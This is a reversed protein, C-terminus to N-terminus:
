IKDYIGNHIYFDRVFKAIHLRITERIIQMENFVDNIPVIVLKDDIGIKEYCDPKLGQMETGKLGCSTASVMHAQMMANTLECLLKDAQESTGLEFAERVSFRSVTDPNKWGSIFIVTSERHWTKSSMNAPHSCINLVYDTTGDENKRKGIINISLNEHTLTVNIDDISGMLCELDYKTITSLNYM